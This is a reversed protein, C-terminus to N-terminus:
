QASDLKYECKRGESSEGITFTALKIDKPISYFLRFKIEKGPKIEQSVGKNQKIQLMTYNWPMDNGDEDTLSPIFTQFDTYINGVSDNKCTLSFVVYHHGEELEAEGLQDTTYTTEDLKIDFNGIPYFVGKEASVVELSKAGTTDKPDVFPKVLPKIKDKLDYRIVLNDGSKVILKPISVDAPVLFLTYLDVKQAPKLEMGLQSDNIKTGVNHIYEHNENNSDVVTFNFTEWNVYAQNKQPNHMAFNIVLMKQKGNPFFTYDGIIMQECTYEAGAVNINMPWEKGLTYEKGFEGAIGDMQKTGQVVPKVSAKPKSPKTAANGALGVVLTLATAASLIKKM